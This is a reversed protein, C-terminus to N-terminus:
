DEEVLARVRNGFEAAMRVGADELWAFYTPWRSEDGLPSDPRIHNIRCAHGDPLEQWSFSIGLAAEIPAQQKQLQAFMSKSDRHDIYLGMAVYNERSNVTASLRFGSRGISINTWHQPRPKTTKLASNKDSLWASWDLWFKHQLQKMPTMTAAAKATQQGAKSWNNPKVAVNFSPALPSNGIRWLEIEVAFFNLADTTHQNLFELAAVHETRFSEAIWIIKRANVGAAYTIIQGLHGHNTKELQNEIIVQGEDDSCLIDLKFDGVLHETGVLELEELGLSEALMQLNEPRALWPTFETAEHSWAARLNLRELKGLTKM